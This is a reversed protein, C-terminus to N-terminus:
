RGEAVLKFGRGGGLVVGSEVSEEPLPQRSAGDSQNNNKRIHHCCTTYSTHMEKNTPAVTLTALLSEFFSLFFSVPPCHYTAFLFPSFCYYAIFYIVLYYIAETM